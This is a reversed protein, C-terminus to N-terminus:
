RRPKPQEATSPPEVDALAAFLLHSAKVLERHTIPAASRGLNLMMAMAVGKETLRYRLLVRESAGPARRQDFQRIARQEDQPDGEIIFGAKELLSLARYVAPISANIGKRVTTQLIERVPTWGSHDLLALLVAAKATGALRTREV